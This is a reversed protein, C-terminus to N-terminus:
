GRHQRCPLTVDQKTLQALKQCKNLTADDPRTTGKIEIWDGRSGDAYELLFDPL